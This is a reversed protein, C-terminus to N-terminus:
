NKHYMILGEIPSQLINGKKLDFSELINKLIDQFYFAVSGVFHIPLSKAAPLKLVYKELFLKFNLEILSKIFPQGIHESFFPTFSAFYRNPFPKQYANELVDELSIVYSNSFTTLLDEPMEKHLYATLLSKGLWGGSGEDGLWFGLNIPSATIKEGDFACANSGTGLICAIGESKGCLARAAALLDHEIFIKSNKFSNTLADFIISKKAETSCGAGYFYIKTIKYAQTQPIIHKKIEEEVQEQTWFYPNIGVSKFQHLTNQKDLVVWDTKSSGSDAILIM